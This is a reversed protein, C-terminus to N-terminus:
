LADDVVVVECPGAINYRAPCRMTIRSMKLAGRTERVEDADLSISKVDSTKLALRGERRDRM